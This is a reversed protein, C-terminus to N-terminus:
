LRPTLLSVSDYGTPCSRVQAFASVRFSKGLIVKNLFMIREPNNPMGSYGASRKLLDAMDPFWVKVSYYM